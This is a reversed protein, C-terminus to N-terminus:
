GQQGVPIDPQGPRDRVTQTWTDQLLNNNNNNNDVFASVSDM